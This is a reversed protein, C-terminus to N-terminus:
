PIATCEIMCHIFALLFVLVARAIDLEPQRCKNVHEKSFVEKISLM